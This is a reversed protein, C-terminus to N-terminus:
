GQPAPTTNLPQQTAEENERKGQVEYIVFDIAAYPFFLLHNESLSQQMKVQLLESVKSIRDLYVGSPTTRFAEATVEAGNLLHVNITTGLTLVLQENDKNM